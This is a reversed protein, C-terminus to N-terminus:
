SSVGETFSACAMSPAAALKKARSPAGLHAGLGAPRSSAPDCAAVKSALSPLTCQVLILSVWLYFRIANFAKSCHLSAPFVITVLDTPPYGMPRKIQGLNWNTHEHHEMRPYFYNSINTM